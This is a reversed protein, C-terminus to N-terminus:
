TTSTSKKIIEEMLKYIEACSNIEQPNFDGIRKANEIATETYSKLHPILKEIYNANKCYNNILKKLTKENINPSKHINKLDKITHECRIYKRTTPKFHLLFWFELCPNNVLLIVKEKLTKNQKIEKLIRKFTELENNHVIQDGDLIWYIKEYETEIEILRKIEMFQKKIEYNRPLEPKIIFPHERSNFNLLYIVETEGEVYVLYTRKPNKRPRKRRL